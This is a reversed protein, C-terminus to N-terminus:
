VGPLRVLLQMNGTAYSMNLPLAGTHAEPRQAGPMPCSVAGSQMLQAPQVACHCAALRGWSPQRAAQLRQLPAAPPPSRSAAPPGQQLAQLHAHRCMRSVDALAIFGPLAAAAHRTKSRLDTQQGAAVRILVLHLGRWRQVHRQWSRPGSSCPGSPLHGGAHQALLQGRATRHLGNSVTLTDQAARTEQSCAM